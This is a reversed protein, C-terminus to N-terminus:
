ADTKGLKKIKCAIEFKFNQLEASGTRQGSDHEKM